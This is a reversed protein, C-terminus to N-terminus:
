QCPYWMLLDEAFPPYESFPFVEYSIYYPSAPDRYPASHFLCSGYLYNQNGIINNISAMMRTINFFVDEDVKLIFQAQRCHEVVWHLGMQTKNTLSYYHDLFSQQVIDGYQRSEAYMRLQMEKDMPQGLLFVHNMRLSTEALVTRRLVSRTEFSGPRTVVMIMLDYHEYVLDHLHQPDRVDVDGAVCRTRPNILYHEMIHHCNRCFTGEYFRFQWLTVLCSYFVLLLCGWSLLLCLKFRRARAMKGGYHSTLVVLWRAAWGAKDSLFFLVIDVYLIIWFLWYFDLVCVNWSMPGQSTQVKSITLWCQNMYHSPATLCCAMVQALTSESRHRWIADIPCLSNSIMWDNLSLQPFIVNKQPYWEPYPRLWRSSGNNQYRMRENASGMIWLLGQKQRLEELGCFVWSNDHHFCHSIEIKCSAINTHSKWVDIVDNCM